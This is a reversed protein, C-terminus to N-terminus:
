KLRQQYFEQLAIYLENSKPYKWITVNDVVKVFNYKFGKSKLYKYEEIYSCPYENIFNNEM